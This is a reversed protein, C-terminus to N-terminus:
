GIFEHSRILSCDYLNWDKWAGAGDHRIRPLGIEAPSIVFGLKPDACVQRLNAATLPRTAADTKRGSVAAARLSTMIKWNPDMLPLLVTSRRQVEMATASSFVVGASQDVALYNPRELTFWVFGGVDHTPTVLVTSTPPVASTWDAFEDIDVVSGFTHWQQFAAPGLLISLAALLVSVVMPVWATRASRVCWWALAGFLVAPIRLGFIERIQAAGLLAHGPPSNPSFVIAWSKILVWALIAIGLAAAAWQWPAAHGHFRSRMVWVLLALSIGATGVETPLTWGSVLLVVCLPGCNDDRWVRFAVAPLLLASVFVSIWVWRWAQGQVLIAVPGLATGIWAVALGAAGVLAAATCLKRIRPEPVAIATFGLYLFPQINVEWDRVSWLPLFLFQSRETVVAAWAADMVTLGHVAPIMTAAVAIVLTASLGGIAAFVILRSPLSLCILLLLGPLAILPHVLIAGTALLFGFGKRGHLHCALATIVLAEAPLRATLYQESIRFVGSGGYDGAVILLLAVALWAADRGSVACAVSWAAGLFWVTALVTLLRAANELGLLNICVAYFPSFATFQDQSTNQLYLDTALQPHLRALAQFAYIQADGTLGHYGRMLLWLTAVMFALALVTFKSQTGRSSMHM